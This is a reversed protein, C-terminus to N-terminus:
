AAPGTPTHTHIHTHAHAHTRAHTHKRTPTYTHTHTHTDHCLSPPACIVRSLTHGATHARTHQSPVAHTGTRLMHGRLWAGRCRQCWATHCVQGLKGLVYDPDIHPSAYVLERLRQYADARHHPHHPAALTSADYKPAATTPASPGEAAAAAAAAAAVAAAAAAAPPEDTAAAAGAGAANPAEAAAAGVGAPPPKQKGAAPGSGGSSGPVSVAVGAGGAAAAAAAAAKAAQQQQLQQQRHARSSPAAWLSMDDPFLKLPVHPRSVLLDSLSLQRAHAECSHHTHTHARAHTHTHTHTHTHAHARTHTRTHTHTNTNHPLVHTLTAARRLLWANVSLWAVARCSVLAPAGCGVGGRAACECCRVRAACVVVACRAAGEREEELAMHLYILLLESHVEAPSVQGLELASELYV